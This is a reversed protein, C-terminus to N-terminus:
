ERRQAEEGEARRAETAAAEVKAALPIGLAARVRDLGVIRGRVIAFVNSTLWFLHVGAPLNAALMWSAAALTRTQSKLETSEHYARGVGAELNTIWTLASLIPLLHAARHLSAPITPRAPPSTLL